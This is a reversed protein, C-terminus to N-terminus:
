APVGITRYIEHGGDWMMQLAVYLILAFGVYAIWKHKQLLNAIAVAAVGMLVVSVALGIILVYPHDRSAGAVALVNDLSM